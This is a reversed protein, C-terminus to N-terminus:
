EAIGGLQLLQSFDYPPVFDVGDEDIGEIETEGILLLRGLRGVHEAHPREQGCEGLAAQLGAGSGDDDMVSALLGAALGGIRLEFRRFQIIEGEGADLLEAALPQQDAGPVM